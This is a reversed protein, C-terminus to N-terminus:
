TGRCQWTFAGTVISQGNTPNFFLVQFSKPNPIDKFDVVALVPTTTNPTVNIGQVDVFDVNFYVPTGTTQYTLTGSTSGSGSGEVTFTNANIKTIQHQTSSSLFNGGSGSFVVITVFCGTELGHPQNDTCTFTTSNVQSYTASSSIPSAVNGRGTDNLIKTDLKLNLSTIKRYKGDTSNVITRYKVRRFNVGFRFFSNGTQINDAGDTTFSGNEGTAIEIFGQKELSGSGLDVGAPTATIKTSALNTGYDYVEEYFGTSPAPELYNLNTPNANILATMNNFQPSAESGTGIFHQKWSETTNVPIYAVGDEVFCNSLTNSLVKAPSTTFNSFFNDNLVFDPPQAVNQTTALASGINGATDVAAIMYTYLGAVQEFVVNFVGDVRGILTGSAFDTPNNANEDHKRIEYSAIKLQKELVRPERWRLLVNNDIVETTGSLSTRVLFPINIEAFIQLATTSLNDNMDRTQIYYYRQGDSVKWSVEEKFAQSNTFVELEIGTTTGSNWNSNFSASTSRIIRYDKIGLNATNTRTPKTYSITIFGQGGESGLKYDGNSPPNLPTVTVTQSAFAGRFRDKVNQLTENVYASDFAAIKFTKSMNLNNEAFDLDITIATADTEFLLTDTNDVVHFIGYKITKFTGNVENWRLRVQDQTFIFAPDKFSPAAARSFTITKSLQSSSIIGEDPFDAREYVPNVTFTRNATPASGTKNLNAATIPIKVNTDKVIVPFINDEGDVQSNAYSTTVKYGIITPIETTQTNTNSDYGVTATNGARPWRLIINDQTIVHKIQSGSVFSPEPVNVIYTLNPSSGGAINVAKIQFTKSGIFNLSVEYNNVDMEVEINNDSGDTIVYKEIAYSGITQPPRWKINIIGNKLKPFGDVRRPASPAVYVFNASNANLSYRGGRDRAKIYYTHNETLRDKTIFDSSRPRGVFTTGKTGFLANIQTTTGAGQNIQTASLKHIEYFAIDLDKFAVKVDTDPNVDPNPENEDFRLINTTKPSDLVTFGTVDNPPETQGVTTISQDRSRGSLKGSTAGISFVRVRYFKNPRVNLIEFSLGQVEETREVGNVEIKLLYKNVDPVQVWQIILRSKIRVTNSNNNADHIAEKYLRETITVNSTRPPKANLNTADRFTVESGTEVAAYISHNYLLATVKYKIKEEEAVLLVRYLQNQLNQVDNNSGSTELIWTSMVNPATNTGDATQFNGNVTIVAGTINSVTKKSVSGDPMLVNLTRTYGVNNAPLNSASADDITIQNTGNVAFIRGGRRQGTKVQDNIAIVQGPRLIVGTDISVTFTVIETLLQESFRTWKALRYAQGASTCGYAQIQKKLIGYKAIVEDRPPNANSNSTPNGIVTNAIVDKSPFQEYSIKRQNNDYYKAIVLTARNKIDSGEYTFNGGVVNAQTFIYAPLVDQTANYVGGNVQPAPKDQSLFLTGASWYPMVRMSSCIANILDYAKFDRNIYENFSFRAEQGVENFTCLGDLGVAGNISNPSVNLALFKRRGTREIKFIVPTNESAPTSNVTGSTFTISILDGTQYNHDGSLSTVEAFSANAFYVFSGSKTGGSNRQNSVLESNYQSINWFSYPDLATEPISLGYRENILLDYLCWAPDNTYLRQWTSRLTGNATLSTGGSWNLSSNYVLRGPRNPDTPNNPDTYVGKPVAVRTGRLRYYRRPVSSFSESSVSFGVLATNPYTQRDFTIVQYSFWQIDNQKKTTPNDSMRRVRIHFTTGTSYNAPVNFRFQRQYPDGTRGGIGVDGLEADQPKNNPFASVYNDNDVKYEIRFFVQTGLIDGNDTFVQLAPVNIIVAIKNAEPYSSISFSRSVGTNEQTEDTPKRINGSNVGVEQRLKNFGPIVTQDQTGVRSDVTVNDFNKDDPNFDNIDNNFIATSNVIPTDDLYIDKQAHKTYNASGFANNSDVASPFGEITGESIADLIVATALSDLNDKATTPASTNNSKAGSINNLNNEEMM